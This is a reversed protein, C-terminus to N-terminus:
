LKPEKAYFTMSFINPHLSWAHIYIYIYIYIHRNFNCYNYIRNCLIVFMGSQMRPFGSFFGQEIETPPWAGWPMVSLWRASCVCCLNAYLILYVIFHNLNREVCANCFYCECYFWVEEIFSVKGDCVFAGWVARPVSANYGLLFAASM